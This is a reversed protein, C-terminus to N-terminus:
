LRQKPKASESKAVHVSLVGDHFDARIQNPNTDGPLAFSRNFKGCACEIRHYRLGKEEKTQKREGSINLIGNEFTVNVDQKKLGPLEAQVIYEKDNESIDVAPTWGTWELREGGDGHPGFSTDLLTDLRNHLEQMERFPNWRTLANVCYSKGLRPNNQSGVPVRRKGTPQRM